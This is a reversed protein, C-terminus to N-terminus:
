AMLLFTSALKIKRKHLTMSSLPFAQCIGSLSSWSGWTRGDGNRM